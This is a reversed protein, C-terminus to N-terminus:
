TCEVNTSFHKLFAACCYHFLTIDNFTDCLNMKYKRYKKIIYNFYYFLIIIIKKHRM